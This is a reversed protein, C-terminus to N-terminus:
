NLTAICVQLTVALPTFVLNKQRKKRQNYIFLIYFRSHLKINNNKANLKYINM